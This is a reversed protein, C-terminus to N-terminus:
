TTRGDTELANTVLDDIFDQSTGQNFIPELKQKVTIKCNKRRLHNKFTNSQEQEALPIVEKMPFNTHM